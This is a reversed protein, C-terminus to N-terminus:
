GCGLIPLTGGIMITPDAGSTLLIHTIMSTTTTKGHAGSVCVANEYGRMIYGWVQAREFVPIGLKDAAKVEINDERAAATRVIFGAGLINDASHGITVDIGVSRLRSIAPSESIDSGTINVGMGRLVEALPSMSVGGIGILHCREGSKIYKDLENQSM